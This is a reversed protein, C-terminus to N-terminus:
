KKFYKWFNIRPLSLSDEIVQFEMHINHVINIRLNEDECNHEIFENLRHLILGLRESLWKKFDDKDDWGDFWDDISFIFEEDIKLRVIDNM